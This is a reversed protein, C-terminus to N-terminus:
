SSRTPRSPPSRTPRRRRRAAPGARHDRHGPRAARPQRQGPVPEEGRQGRAAARVERGARRLARRRRPQDGGARRLAPPLAGDRGPQDGGARRQAPGARRAPARVEDLAALLQENQVALEDLPTRRRRRPRARDRVDALRDPTLAPAGTPLRRSMRVVPYRRPGDDVSWRTSWAAAGIQPPDATRGRPVPSWTSTCSRHSRRPRSRRRRRRRDRDRDSLLYRGVESLATALRIQDQHELGVARPSRAAASASSSSTRSSGCRWAAAAARPRDTM